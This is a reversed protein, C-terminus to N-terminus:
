LDRSMQYGNEGDSYYGRLLDNVSFGFRTYFRIATANGVRVELTVRAMGRSKCRQLFSEMLHAGVGRDRWRGDVAFMLVRAEGPVQNVGLLFGQPVGMRDQAILFGQPWQQSLSLYLSPEYHERLAEAVIEGLRPIDRPHFNRLFVEGGAIPELAYSSDARPETSSM